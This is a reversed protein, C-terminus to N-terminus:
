FVELIRDDRLAMLCLNNWKGAQAGRLVNETVFRFGKYVGAMQLFDSGDWDDSLLEYQNPRYDDKDKSGPVLNASIFGDFRCWYYKPASRLKLTKNLGMKLNVENYILGKLGLDKVDNIIKESFLYTGDAAGVSVVDYWIKNRGDIMTVTAKGEKPLSRIVGDACKVKEYIFDGVAPAGREAGM